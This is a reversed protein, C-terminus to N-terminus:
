EKGEIGLAECIINDQEDCDSTAMCDGCNDVDDNSSACRTRIHQIWDTAGKAEEESPVNDLLSLITKKDRDTEEEIKEKTKTSHNSRWGEIFSAGDSVFDKLREKEENTM